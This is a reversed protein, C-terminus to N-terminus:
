RGPRGTRNTDTGPTSSLRHAVFCDLARLLSSLDVLKRLYMTWCPPGVTPEPAASMLVIPLQAFVPQCRLRRCLEAGDMEPMELDTVVFRAPEHALRRLADGASEALLVHHGRSELALQMAWLSEVDDDVLLVTSM